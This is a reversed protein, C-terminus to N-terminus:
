EHVEGVWLNYLYREDLALLVGVLACHDHRRQEVAVVAGTRVGAHNRMVQIENLTRHRLMVAEALPKRASCGPEGLAQLTDYVVDSQLDRCAIQLQKFADDSWPKDVNIQECLEDVKTMVEDFTM